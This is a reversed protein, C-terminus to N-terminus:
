VHQTTLKISNFKNFYYITEKRTHMCMSLCKGRTYKKAYIKQKYNNERM